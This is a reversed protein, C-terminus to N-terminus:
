IHLLQLVRGLQWWSVGEACECMLVSMSLSFGFLPPALFHNFGSVHQVIQPRLTCPGAHLAVPM